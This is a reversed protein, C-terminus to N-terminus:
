PRGFVAAFIAPIKARFDIHAEDLFAPNAGGGPVKGEVIAGLYSPPPYPGGFQGAMRQEWLLEKQIPTLARWALEKPQPHPEYSPDINDIYWFIFQWIYGQGVVSKGINTDGIPGVGYGGAITEVETLRDILVGHDVPTFQIISALAEQVCLDLLAQRKAALGAALYGLM